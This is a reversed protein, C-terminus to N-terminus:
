ESIISNVLNVLEEDKEIDREFKEGYKFTADYCLGLDDVGARIWTRYVHKTKTATTNGQLLEDPKFDPSRPYLGKIAQMNFINICGNDNQSTTHSKSPLNIKREYGPPSKSKAGMMKVFDGFTITFRGHSSVQANDLLLTSAASSQKQSMALSNSLQCKTTVKHCESNEPPNPCPDLHSKDLM